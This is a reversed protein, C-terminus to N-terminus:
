NKNIETKRGTTRGKHITGEKTKTKKTLYQNRYKKRENNREKTKENTRNKISKQIEEM